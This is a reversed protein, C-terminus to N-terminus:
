KLFLSSLPLSGHEKYHRLVDSYEFAMPSPLDDIEFWGMESSEEDSEGVREMLKAEFVIGINQRGKDPRDPDDTICVIGLIEVDWGTEERCERKATNVCTEGHNMYGAPLAWKGPETPLHLGRKVLLVKGSENLVIVGPTLHRLKGEGGNEFFCKITMERGRNSGGTHTDTKLM